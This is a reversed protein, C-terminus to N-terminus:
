LDDISSSAWESWHCAFGLVLYVMGVCLAWFHNDFLYQGLTM